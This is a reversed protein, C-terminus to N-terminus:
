WGTESQHSRLHSCPNVHLFVSIDAERLAVIYNQSNYLFNLNCCHFLWDPLRSNISFSRINSESDTPRHCAWPMSTVIGLIDILETTNGSLKAKRQIHRPSPLRTFSIIFIWSQIIGWKGQSSWTLLCSSSTRKRAREPCQMDSLTFGSLVIGFLYRNWTVIKLIQLRWKLSRFFRDKDWVSIISM